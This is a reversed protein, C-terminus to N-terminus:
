DNNDLDGNATQSSSCRTEKNDTTEKCLHKNDNILENSPGCGRSIYQGTDKNAITTCKDQDAMVPQALNSMAIMGVLLAVSAVAFIKLNM